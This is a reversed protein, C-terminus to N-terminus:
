PLLLTIQTFIDFCDYIGPAPSSKFHLKLFNALAPIINQAGHATQLYVVTVNKIALSKAIKYATTPLKTPPLRIIVEPKGSPHGTDDESDSSDADSEDLASNQRDHFWQLYASRLTIAEQCRQKAMQNVWVKRQRSQQVNCKM